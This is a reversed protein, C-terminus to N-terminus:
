PGDCKLANRFSGGGPGDRRIAISGPQRRRTRERGAHFVDRAIGAGAAGRKIRTGCSQVAGAHGPQRARFGGADM